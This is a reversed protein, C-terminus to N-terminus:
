ATVVGSNLVELVNECSILAKSGSYVVRLTGNKVLRRLMYESIHYGMSILQCHIERISGFKCEM